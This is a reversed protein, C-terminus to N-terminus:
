GRVRHWDFKWCESVFKQAKAISFYGDDGKLKGEADVFILEDKGVVKDIKHLENLINEASLGGAYGQVVNEFLPARWNDCKIGEGFSNDYLPWFKYSFKDFLYEIFEINADSCSLIFQQKKYYKVASILKKADPNENRGIKFNLQVYKVFPHGNYLTLGLFHQLEKAVDGNIFRDVWDLNIHLGINLNAEKENLYHYLANLWWYRATGFGGKKGCVQVGIVVEPLYLNGFAEVLDTIETHENAGSCTILNLKM